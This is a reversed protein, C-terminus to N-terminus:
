PEMRVSRRAADASPGGHESAFDAVADLVGDAFLADGLLQIKLWARLGPVQENFHRSATLQHTADPFLRYEFGVRDNGAFVRSYVEISDHVDVNLDRGGFLALVPVDIDALAETADEAVLGKVFGFRAESMPEGRGGDGRARELLELYAAHDGEESALLEDIRRDTEDPAAAAAPDEVGARELRKRRFYEGQRIVDIATSAFIMYDVWSEDALRPLVWGAQSFGLVGIRSADVGGHADLRRYAAIVEAARDDMDQALWDGGSGGVGPKDWSFSAIGRAALAERFARYYGHADRDVPGDGAVIIVAPAPAPSGLPLALAGRLEDGSSM